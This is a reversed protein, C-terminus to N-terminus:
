RSLAVQDLARGFQGALIRQGAAGFHSRNIYLATTTSRAADAMTVNNLGYYSPRLYVDNLRRYIGATIVGPRRSILDYTFAM